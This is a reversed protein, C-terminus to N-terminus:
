KRGRKEWCASCYVARGPTPDFPLETIEAGCQTCKWSGRFARNQGKAKRGAWCGSCYIPFPLETIEKECDACKISVKQKNEIAM